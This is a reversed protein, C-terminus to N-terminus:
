EPPTEHGFAARAAELCDQATCAGSDTMTWTSDQKVYHFEIGQYVHQGSDNTHTLYLAIKGVPQGYVGHDRAATIVSAVEVPRHMIEALRGQHEQELDLALVALERGFLWNQASAVGWVTTVAVLLAVLVWLRRKGM